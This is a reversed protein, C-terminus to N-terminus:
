LYRSFGLPKDVYAFDRPIFDREIPPPSLSRGRRQPLIDLYQRPENENYTYLSPTEYFHPNLANRQARNKNIFYSNFELNEDIKQRYKRSM